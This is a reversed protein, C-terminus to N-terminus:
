FLEDGLQLEKIPLNNVEIWGKYGEGIPVYIIQAHLNVPIVNMKSM